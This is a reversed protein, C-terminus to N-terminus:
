WLAGPRSPRAVKDTGVFDRWAAVMEDTLRLASPAFGADLAAQRAPPYSETLQRALRRNANQFDPHPWLATPLQYGTLVGRGVADDLLNASHALRAAVQREDDGSLMLWLADEFGGIESQIEDLAAQPPNVRPGLNRTSYDWAPQRFLLVAVACAAVLWTVSWLTVPRMMRPPLWVSRGTGDEAPAGARRTLVPLFVALMVGAAMLIGIGVLMGLQTLGPLSSRGVWFFAGATTGAAWLISPATERRLRAVPRLPHCIHEQYLILGYDAALGLLIAAFGLSVANLPGLILSGAAVTALLILVLLSVLWILPSWKRYALWFLGAVLGLTGLCATLMDRMLGSGTRAVFAPTGSLRVVPPDSATFQGQWARVAAEVEAM